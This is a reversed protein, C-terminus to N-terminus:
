VQDVLVAFVVGTQGSLNTMDAVEALTAASGDFAKIKDNAKDYQFHYSGGYLHWVWIVPQDYGLVEGGTPYSSDFDVSIVHISQNPSKPLGNMDKGYKRSVTLSM